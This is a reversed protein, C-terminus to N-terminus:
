CVAEWTVLILVDSQQVANLICVGDYESQDTMTGGKRSFYALWSM